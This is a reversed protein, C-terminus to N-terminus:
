RPDLRMVYAAGQDISVGSSTTGAVIAIARGDLLGAQVRAGMAGGARISEGGFSAIPDVVIGLPQRPTGARNYRYMLAGGTLPAGVFDAYPAGVLLGARGRSSVQPVLAVAAGFAEGNVAGTIFFNGSRTPEVFPHVVGPPADDVVSVTSRTALYSGPVIWAAGVRDGGITLGPGGIALDPINDGDVDLGGSLATGGGAYRAGSVLVSMRPNPSCGPGGFGFLIRVSGQGPIGLDDSPGGAAVDDCGDSDIDGLRTVSAGVYSRADRGRYLFDPSCIVRTLGGPDPSRGRVLAFGGVAGRDPRSWSPGGVLLDSKGDNDYDFRGDIAAIQQGPYPGHFVFAPTASPLAGVAGRFIYVSGTDNRVRDECDAEPASEAAYVREHDGRQALVAFDDAGDGDFDGLARVSAGFQDSPGAADFDSLELAPSSAFGDPGGLYLWVAGADLGRARLDAGPAGVALDEYGDGNVDGIIGIGAGVAAGSAEGPLALPVHPLARNGPVYYPVGVNPGYRDGLAAYVLFDPARDGDLDGLVAAALGFREDVDAGGIQSTPTIAPLPGLRGTFVAVYGAGLADGDGRWASAILDPRRDGTADAVSVTRGAWEFERAGASTWDVTTVSRIEGRTALPAAPLARGLLVRIAGTDRGAIGDHLPQSIVLEARGDGNLDGAALQEGFRASPDGAEDGVFALHPRETIGGDDDATAAVGPHVYLLGDGNRGPGTALTITAIALDCAGDGDYDAGIVAGGLRLASQGVWLDDANLVEGYITQEPAELFGDPHGLFVFVAGQDNRIPQRLRDEGGGAGVALDLTGDGNFDCATMADGFSEGVSHGGMIHYPNPEFYGDEVGRFFFVGGSDRANVDARPASVALDDDGDGDFDAVLMATGFGDDRDFGGLIQAPEARLGSQSGRYVFVAGANRGSVDAEPLGLLADPSGDGDLDGPGLVLAQQSADGGRTATVTQPAVFNISALAAQQTFRDTITFEARGPVASYLVGDVYEIAANTSEIDVIGSGGALVLRYRSGVPVFVEAPVARLESGVVVDVTADVIEGSARDRVRVVDQGEGAGARYLGTAELSAGSADVLLEFSLQGSGNGVAYTFQMGPQVEAAAPQVDMGLVVSVSATATGACTTDTVRILDTVEGLPGSLYAGTTEDLFAGSRNDVIGFLYAGTGGGAAFTALSTPLVYALTPTLTLPVECAPLGITEPPWGADPPTFGGDPLAPGTDAAVGSDAPPPIASRSITDNTECAAALGVLAAFMANPRIMRARQSQLNPTMFGLTALTATLAPDPSM